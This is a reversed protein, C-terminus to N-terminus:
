HATAGLRTEGTRPSTTEKIREFCQEHRRVMHNDSEIDRVPNGKAAKPHNGLATENSKNFGADPNTPALQGQYFIAKMHTFDVEYETFMADIDKSRELVRTVFGDLMYSPVLSGLRRVRDGVKFTTMSEIRGGM